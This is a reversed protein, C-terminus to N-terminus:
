SLVPGLILEVDKENNIAANPIRIVKIKHGNFCTDRFRDYQYQTNGEHYIGDVEVITHKHPLFFDAFYIKGSFIFPAQHIFNIKRKLLYSALRREYVNASDRLRQMTTEIWDRRSETLCGLKCMHVTDEMVGYLNHKDLLDIRKQLKKKARAKKRRKVDGNAMTTNSYNVCDSNWVGKVM